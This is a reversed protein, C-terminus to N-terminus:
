TLPFSILVLLQILFLHFLLCQIKAHQCQVCSRTWCRVNSNIGLWMFSSTILKQTALIGPHSLGHLSDFVIRRWPLPVLPCDQLPTMCYLIVLTAPPIAEVVLPSTTSSQVQPDSAQSRAMVAFDISLPQGSLLTSTEIHSLYRSSHQATRM